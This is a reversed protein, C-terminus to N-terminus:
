IFLFMYPSKWIQMLTGKITNTLNVEKMLLFTDSLFHCHCVEQILLILYSGYKPGQWVDIISKTMSVVTMIFVICKTIFDEISFM